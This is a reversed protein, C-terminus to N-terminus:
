INSVFLVKLFKFKSFELKGARNFVHRILKQNSEDRHDRFTDIM